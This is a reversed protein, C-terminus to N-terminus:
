VSGTELLGLEGSSAPHRKWIQALANKPCHVRSQQPATSAYALLRDLSRAHSKQVAPWGKSPKTAQTRFMSTDTKLLYTMICATQWDNLAPQAMLKCCCDRRDLVHVISSIWSSSIPMKLKPRKEEPAGQMRDAVQTEGLWIRCFRRACELSKNFPDM